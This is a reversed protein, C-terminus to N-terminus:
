RRWVTPDLAAKAAYDEATAQVVGSGDGAESADKQVAANIKAEAAAVRKEWERGEDEISTIRTTTTHIADYLARATVAADSKLKETLRDLNAFLRWDGYQTQRNERTELDALIPFTM